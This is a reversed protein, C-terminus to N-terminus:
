NAVLGGARTWIDRIKPSYTYADLTHRPRREIVKKFTAIASDADGAAVYACGLLVGVEAALASDLFDTDVRILDRKMAAYDGSRWAARAAPLVDAAEEQMRRRKDARARAQADPPPLKSSRVRVHHIPVVITEGPQLSDRDLFNYRRLLPGNKSDGFYAAAISNLSEVAAATHTVHFPISLVTGAALTDDAAMGNFEALFPGRRKDGLYAAALTEFTDGVDATVDRSVPIKLKEGPTLERPHQMGNAVMIFIMQNRDGYYEAALLELSDGKKVKHSITDGDARAPTARAGLVALAAAVAVVLGVLRTARATRRAGSM